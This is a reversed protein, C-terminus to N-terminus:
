HRLPPPPAILADMEQQLADYRAALDRLEQKLTAVTQALLWNRSELEREQRESELLAAELNRSRRKEEMLLKGTDRMWSQIRQQEDLLTDDHQPELSAEGEIM